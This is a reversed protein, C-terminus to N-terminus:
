KNNNFYIDGETKSKLLKDEAVGRRTAMSITKDLATTYNETQMDFIWTYDEADDYYEKLAKLGEIYNELIWKENQAFLADKEAQHYNIERKIEGYLSITFRGIGIVNLRLFFEVPNFLAGGGTAFGRITADSIDILCFTGHAVTLMREVTPNSFPKIIAWMKQFSREEKKTNSYYQFLRRVSYFLRVLLSNVFVPIAQTTQFRADYGKNFLEEALENFAKNFDSVPINLKAKIAIINNTWSWIPSPVGMGRGKGGSSGAVDSMIHGVWNVFGCWVKSPINNGKLEFKGGVDVLEILQGNGIFHSSLTFQDLISFFLGLITPNHALSKFHHSKPSLDLGLIYKGQLNTGIQDYPIKFRRELFGIASKLPNTNSKKPGKWGCIKAFLQVKSDFWKDTIGGLLSEGPKGVLFVDIIGCLCGSSAALAYDTKDCQPKLDNISNITEELEYIEKEAEKIAYLIRDTCSPVTLGNGVVVLQCENNSLNEM